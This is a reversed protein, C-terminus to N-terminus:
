LSDPRARFHTVCNRGRRKSAYLARDSEELLAAADQAGSGARTAVGVSVTVARRLGTLAEICARMREAIKLAGSADTNPLLAAIEEGGYRSVLDGARSCTLLAEAIAKLVVDGQPHGFDDNYSKFFDVDLLILSLPSAAESPSECHFELDERFKRHNDLGTLGDTKALKEFLLIRGDERNKRETIDSFTVVVGYPRQESARILPAANISIWTLAGDPKHVGMIVDRQPRGTALVEMAPHAEGPFPCGDEHVTRWRPDVSTRGLMQDRSLGLIQEARSDCLIIDGGQQHLVVGEHRTELASAFRREAEARLEIERLLELRAVVQRGLAKLAYVQVPSLARPVYDIVCLTGVAEGTPTVLPAGAYFRVYPEGTVYPNDAFRADTRADEVLLVDNPKLVAHTCFSWERPTERVDVGFGSKFWQRTGDLFSILSVPTDCLAAALLTFDDFNPDPPTDLIQYALLAASTRREESTAFPPPIAPDAAIPDIM